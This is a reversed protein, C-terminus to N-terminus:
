ICIRYLTYALRADQMIEYVYHEAQHLHQNTKLM